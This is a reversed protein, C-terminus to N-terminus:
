RQAKNQYAFLGFYKISAKDYADAADIINIFRGLQIVKQNVKIHANWKQRDNDWHVGKYGSKNNKQPGRNAGNQSQTAYRLNSRRNNLPCQDAHDIKHRLSLGMRRAIIRHMRIPPKNRGGSRIARGDSYCWNWQMLYDYDIDDVIAFKDQTLPIRKM